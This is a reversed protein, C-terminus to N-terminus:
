PKPGKAMADSLALALDKLDTWGCGEPGLIKRVLSEAAERLPPYANAWECARRTADLRYQERFRRPGGGAAQFLILGSSPGDLAAGRIEEAGIGVTEQFYFREPLPEESAFELGWAAKIAEWTREPVAQFTTYTGLLQTLQEGLKGRAERETMDTKMIREEKEDRVRDRGAAATL